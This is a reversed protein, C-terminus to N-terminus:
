FMDAVKNILKSSIEKTPFLINVKMLSLNRTIFCICLSNMPPKSM